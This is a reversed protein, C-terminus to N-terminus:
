YSYKFTFKDNQPHHASQYKVEALLEVNKAFAKSIRNENGVDNAIIKREKDSMLDWEELFAEKHHRQYHM